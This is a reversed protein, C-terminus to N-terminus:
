RIRKGGSIYGDSAVRERMERSSLLRISHTKETQFTLLRCNWSTVVLLFRLNLSLKNASSSLLVLGYHMIPLIIQIPEVNEQQGVRQSPDM